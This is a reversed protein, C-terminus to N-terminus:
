IKRAPKWIELTMHFGVVFVFAICKDGCGQVPKANMLPTTSTSAGAVIQMRRWQRKVCNQLQTLNLVLM